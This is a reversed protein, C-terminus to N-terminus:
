ATIGCAVHEPEVSVMTSLVVVGPAVGAGPPAFSYSFVGVSSGAAVQAFDPPDHPVTPPTPVHRDPPPWVDGPEVVDVLVVVFGSLVVLVVDVTSVGTVRQSLLPLHVVVVSVVVVTTVRLLPPVIVPVVVVVLVLWAGPEPDPEPEPVSSSSDEKPDLQAAPAAVTV